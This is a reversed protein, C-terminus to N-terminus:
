TEKITSDETYDFAWQRAAAYTRITGPVREYIIKGTSPCTVETYVLPERGGIPIEILRCKAGGRDTVADIQKADAGALFREKGMVEVMVRRVEVNKEEMVLKATIREPEEIVWAPTLVGHYWYQAYGDGFQVAPGTANHLRGGDDKTAFAPRLSVLVVDTLCVMDWVGLRLTESLQKFGDWSKQDGPTWGIRQFYDYFSLWGSNCLGVWERGYM